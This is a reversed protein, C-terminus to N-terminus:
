DSSGINNGGAIVITTKIEGRPGGRFTGPWIEKKSIYWLRDNFEQLLLFIAAFTKGHRFGNLRNLKAQWSLNWPSIEKEKYVSRQRCGQHYRVDRCKQAQGLFRMPYISILRFYPSRGYLLIASLISFGTSTKWGFILGNEPLKGTLGTRRFDVPSIWLDQVSDAPLRELRIRRDTGYFPKPVVKASFRNFEKKREGTTPELLKGKGDGWLCSRSFGDTGYESDTLYIRLKFFSFHQCCIFSAPSIFVKMTKSLIRRNYKEYFGGLTVIPNWGCGTASIQKTWSHKMWRIREVGQALFYVEGTSDWGGLGNQQRTHHKPRLTKRLHYCSFSTGQGAGHVLKWFIKMRKGKEDKKELM